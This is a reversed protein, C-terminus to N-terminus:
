YNLNIFLVPLLNMVPAFIPLRYDTLISNCDKYSGNGVVQSGADTCPTASFTLQVLYMEVENEKQELSSGRARQRISYAQVNKKATTKKERKNKGEKPRHSSKELLQDRVHTYGNIKWPLKKCLDLLSIFCLVLQVQTSVATIICLDIRQKLGNLVRSLM